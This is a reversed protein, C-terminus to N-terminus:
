QQSTQEGQSLISLLQAKLPSLDQQIIGWVTEMDVQFYDHVLVHRLGEIVDWDIATHATRFEKSLMYVSEGICQLNYIVAHRLLKNGEFANFSDIGALFENINDISELMLHIRAYDNVKDRM